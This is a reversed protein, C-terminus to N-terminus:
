KPPNLARSQYIALGELALQGSDPSLVIRGLIELPRDTEIASAFPIYVPVIGRLTSKNDYGVLLDFSTSAETGSVNAAMGKWIVHCGLYLAPDQHVEDFPIREELNDFGPVTLYELLSNAKAKVSDSANSQLIRNLAVRAREDNYTRFHKRALEFYQDVERGSLIRKFSGSNDTMLARDNEDLASQVYGARYSSERTREVAPLALIVLALLLAGSIGTILLPLIPKRSPLPPFLSNSKGSELWAELRDKEIIGRVTNLARKALKNHPDNALVELWAEIARNTDGRRLFLVAMGLLVDTSRIKIERARRYYTHAGGYDGSYLCALALLHYYTFSDHYRVVEPELMRILEDFRRAALLKKARALLRDQGSVPM